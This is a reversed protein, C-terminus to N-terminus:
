PATPRRKLMAVVSGVTFALVLALGLAVGTEHPHVHPLEGAHALVVASSTLLALM